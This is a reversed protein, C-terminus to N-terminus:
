LSLIIAHQQGTVAKVATKMHVGFEEQLNGHLHYVPVDWTANRFRFENSEKGTKEIKLFILPPRMRGCALNGVLFPLLFSLFTLSGIPWCQLWLQRLCSASFSVTTLLFVSLTELITM